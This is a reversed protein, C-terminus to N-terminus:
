SRDPFRSAVVATQLKVEIPFVFFGVPAPRLSILRVSVALTGTVGVSV